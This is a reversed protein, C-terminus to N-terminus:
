HSRGAKDLAVTRGAEPRIWRPVHLFAEKPAIGGSEPPLSGGPCFCVVGM